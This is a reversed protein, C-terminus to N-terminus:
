AHSNVKLDKALQHAATLPAIIDMTAASSAAAPKTQAVLGGNPCVNEWSGNCVIRDDIWKSTSGDPCLCLAGGSRQVWRGPCSPLHQASALSVDSVLLIFIAALRRAVSEFM